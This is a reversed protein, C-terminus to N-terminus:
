RRGEKRPNPTSDSPPSVKNGTEKTRRMLSSYLHFQRLESKKEAQRLAYKLHFPDAQFFDGVTDVRLKVLEEVHAPCDCIEYVPTDMRVDLRKIKKAMMEMRALDAPALDGISSFGLHRGSGTELMKRIDDAMIALQLKLNKLRVSDEQQKDM